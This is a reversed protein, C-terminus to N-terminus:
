SVTWQHATVTYVTIYSQKNRLVVDYKLASATGQIVSNPQEKLQKLTVIIFLILILLPLM